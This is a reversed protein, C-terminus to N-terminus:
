VRAEMLRDHIFARVADCDRFWEGQVRFSKLAEHARAEDFRDGPWAAIVKIEHASGTQFFARREAVDKAVGLKVLGGASMAYCNFSPDRPKKRTRACLELARALVIEDETLEVEAPPKRLARRMGAIDFSTFRYQRGVKYGHSPHDKLWGQLWRRSCRLAEAAEDLTLPAAETGGRTM